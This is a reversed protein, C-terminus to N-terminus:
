ANLIEQATRKGSEIAGQMWGAWISTHEGAFHIRGEAAGVVALMWAQGPLIDCWAGKVWPDDGWSWSKFHLTEDEIQPFFKKIEADLYAKRDGEAVAQLANANENQTYAMVMGTAGEQVNSIDWLREAKTDTKAIKVGGIDEEQWFRSRTQYFGRSSNMMFLENICKTKQESFAPSVPINRLITYPLACVCHDGSYVEPTGNNDVTILVGTDTHEIKTIVRGLKVADGLQSAVGKPILDNGGVVHFTADWDQDAVEAAMWAIAGIKSVESGEGATYLALWDETAGVSALFQTWSMNDYSAITDPQPFTGDRPNGFADFHGAVYTGWMDPGNAQEEPTGNPLPWADGDQYIFRNGKLYYLPEGSSFEALDLGLAEVYELTYNHVDPIRVAGMEFYQGNDWGDHDTRVRGGVHDQAELVVVSKGAKQLEWAASLGSLGGGLVVVDFHLADIGTDTGTDTGSDTGTDTGTDTNNGNTTGSEKSDGTCAPIYVSVGMAALMELFRRRDVKKGIM